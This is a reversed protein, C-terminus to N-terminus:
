VSTYLMTLIKRMPRKVVNHSTTYHKNTSCTTPDPRVSDRDGKIWDTWDLGYVHTYPCSPRVPYHHHMAGVCPQIRRDLGGLRTRVLSHISLVPPCSLSSASFWCM